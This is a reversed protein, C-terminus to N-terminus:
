ASAGSAQATNEQNIAAAKRVKMIRIGELVPLKGEIREELIALAIYLDVLGYLTLENQSAKKRQMLRTYWKIGITLGVHWMWIDASLLYRCMARYYNLTYIGSRPRVIDHASGSALDLNRSLDRALGRDIDRDLTRALAVVLKRARTIDRAIARDLDLAFAFARARVLTHALARNLDLTCDIARGLDLARDIDLDFDLYSALVHTHDLDFISTHGEDSKQLILQRDKLLRQKLMDSLLLDKRAVLGYVKQQGSVNGWYGANEHISDDCNRDPIQYTWEGAERDSLWRCFEIADSPRVGLVPQRASGAAFHTGSWYDPQRYDGAARREDIFLQYEACSILEHDIYHDDDLRTLRRLRLALRTEAALRAREPQTDQLGAIVMSEVKNRLEPKVALAEELCEVALTLKVVESEGTALCAEVIPTADAQAVYLHITEHWWPIAVKAEWDEERKEEVIYSAALYEQFTLHAFSYVGNERELLLGSSNEVSRLFDEPAISVSVLALPGRIAEVAEALAVERKEACMMHFALPELVRKKQAPTLDLEIGRAQQRKGLFVECIEAYLEVRRGPLSSRYRHVNAIMTLLLPNVALEALSPNAHIRKVLDAAGERAVIRVGEDNKQASMVENALYWNSIFKESQQSSFPRVELVTVTGLPNSKYGFPRSSVLFRNMGVAQLQGEVWEAVTKRMAADAVEDLGDLMVLCRGRRLERGFWGVPAPIGMKEAAQTAVDAISQEPNKAIAAAHDRIFLLIPLRKLQKFKGRKAALALTIHKLLTTKGSGPAGLVAFDQRQMQPSTLFTWVDHRGGNSKAIPNASAKDAMTPDVTLEVYVQEIELAYIGQTSLGKVDFARHRQQLHELYRKRYRSAFDRIYIDLADGCLDVITKEVRVWIKSTIGVFATWLVGGIAAVAASILKSHSSFFLAMYGSLGLLISSVSFKYRHSDTM